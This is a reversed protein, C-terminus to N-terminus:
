TLSGLFPAHPMAVIVRNNGPRRRRGGPVTGCTDRGAREARVALRLRAVGRDARGAAAGAGRGMSFIAMDLGLLVINRRQEAFTPRRPAQAPAVTM